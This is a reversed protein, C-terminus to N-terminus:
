PINDPMRLFSLPEEIPVGNEGDRFLEAWGNKKYFHRNKEMPSSESWGIRVIGFRCGIQVAQRVFDALGASGAGKDEEDKWVTIASLYAIPWIDLSIGNEIMAVDNEDLSRHKLLDELTRCVFAKWAGVKNGSPGVIDASFETEDKERMQELLKLYEHMAAIVGDEGGTCAERVWQRAAEPDTEVLL